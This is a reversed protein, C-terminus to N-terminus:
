PGGGPAAGACGITTTSRDLSTSHFPSGNNKVVDPVPFMTDTYRVPQCTGASSCPFSYQHGSIRFSDCFRRLSRFGRLPSPVRHEGARIAREDVSRDVQAFPAEAAAASVLLFRDVQSRAAHHLQDLSVASHGQQGTRKATEEPLRYAISSASITRFFALRAAPSANRHM